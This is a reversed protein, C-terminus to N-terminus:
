YQYYIYIPPFGDMKEWDIAYAQLERGVEKAIEINKDIEEQTASNGNAGRICHSIYIRFIPNSVNSNKTM